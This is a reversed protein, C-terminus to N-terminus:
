LKLLLITAPFIVASRLFVDFQLYLYFYRLSFVDNKSDFPSLLIILVFAPQKIQNCFDLVILLIFLKKSVVPVSKHSPRSVVLNPFHVRFRPFLHMFLIYFLKWWVLFVVLQLSFWVLTFSCLAFSNLIYECNLLYYESYSSSKTLFAKRSGDLKVLAGLNLIVSCHFRIYLAWYFCDSKFFSIVRKLSEPSWRYFPSVQVIFLPFPYIARYCCNRVYFNTDDRFSYSCCSFICWFSSRFYFYRSSYVDAKSQHHSYIHSKPHFSHWLSM